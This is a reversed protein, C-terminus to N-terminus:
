KAKLKEQMEEIIQEPTFDRHQMFVEMFSSMFANLQEQKKDEKVFSTVDIPRNCKNCYHINFPNLNGCYQCKKPALKKKDEEKELLKEQDPEPDHLGIYEEDADKDDYHLYVNQLTSTTVGHRQAMTETRMGENWRQTVAFHRFLHPHLRKDKLEPIRAHVRKITWWFSKPLMRKHLSEKGRSFSPFLPAKKNDKYPHEELWQQLYPSAEILRVYRKASKSQEIFIKAGREDFEVSGVNLSAMEGDRLGGEAFVMIICKDKDNYCANVLKVIDDKTPLDKKQKTKKTIRILDFSTGDVINSMKLYNYFFRINTKTTNIGSLEKNGNLSDIYRDAEKKTIKEFPKNIYRGLYQLCKISNRITAWSIKGGRASNQKKYWEAFKRLTKAQEEPMVDLARNIEAQYLEEMNKYKPNGM